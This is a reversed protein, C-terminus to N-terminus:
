IGYKIRKELAAVKKWLEHCDNSNQGGINELELLIDELIDVLQLGIEM